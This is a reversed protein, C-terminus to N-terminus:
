IIKLGHMCTVGKMAMAGWYKERMTLFNDFQSLIPAMPSSVHGVGLARVHSM